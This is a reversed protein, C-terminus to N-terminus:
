RKYILNYDETMINYPFNKLCNFGDKIVQEVDDKENGKKDIYDQGTKIKYYDLCSDLDVFIIEEFDDAFYEPEEYDYKLRNIISYKFEIHLESDYILKAIEKVKPISIEEYENDVDIQKILKM